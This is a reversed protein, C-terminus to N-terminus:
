DTRRRYYVAAGIVVASLGIVALYPIFREMVDFLGEEVLPVGLKPDHVISDGDYNFTLTTGNGDNTVRTRVDSTEGNMDASRVWTYFGVNGNETTEIGAENDGMYSRQAPDAVYTVTGETQVTAILATRTDPRIGPFDVVLDIKMLNPSLEGYETQTRTETTHTMMAFMGNSTRATITHVKKGDQTSENVHELDDWSVEDLNVFSVQWDGPGLYGDGDVDEYEVIQHFIIMMQVNAHQAKAENRYQM